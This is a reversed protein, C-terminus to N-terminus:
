RSRDSSRFAAAREAREAQSYHPDSARQKALLAYDDAAQAHLGLESAIRATREILIYNDPWFGYAKKYITLAKMLHGRMEEVEGVRLLTRAYQADDNDGASVVEDLVAEAIAPDRSAALQSVRELCEVSSKVGRAEGAFEQLPASSEGTAIRARAKLEYPECQNPNLRQAREAADFAVHVCGDWYTGECWPPRGELDDVANRARRTAPGVQNPDRAALEEDLRVSTAPLNPGLDSALAELM